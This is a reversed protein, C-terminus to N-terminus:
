QLLEKASVIRVMDSDIKAVRFQKGQSPNIDRLNENAINLPYDVEIAVIAVLGADTSSIILLNSIDLCATENYSALNFVPVIDGRFNLLGCFNEQGDDANERQLLVMPIVEVVEDVNILRSGAYSQFRLYQSINM